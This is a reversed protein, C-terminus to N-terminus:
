QVVITPAIPYRGCASGYITLGGQPQQDRPVACRLRLRNGKMAAKVEDLLAGEVTAHSLYGYAGLNGQL